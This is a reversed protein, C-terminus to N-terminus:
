HNKRDLRMREERSTSRQNTSLRSNGFKYRFGLKIYRNDLNSFLRSNQDLFKTTVRFDHDNLLDSVALSLVGKGKLITKKLSLDSLIRSDVMQLGQVNESIYILSLNAM